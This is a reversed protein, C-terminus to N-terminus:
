MGAATPALQEVMILELDYLSVLGEGGGATGAALYRADPSLALSNAMAKDISWERVPAQSAIDWLYVQGGDAVSVVQNGRPTFRVLRVAGSHGSLVARPAPDAGTGDWLRISGDKSGSALLNGTPSHSLSTIADTHGRLPPKLTHRLWGFEYFRITTDEGGLALRKGDPHFALARALTNHSRLITERNWGKKGLGWLFVATLATAALRTGDHSFVLADVQVPEGPFRARAKVSDRERWDWRWMPGRMASASGTVLVAGTPDFTIVQLDGLQGRLTAAETPRAGARDLMPGLDWVRVVDDVGGSALVRGDPSFSLATVYGKHGALAASRRASHVVSDMNLQCTPPPPTDAVRPRVTEDMSATPPRVEFVASSGRPSAGSLVRRQVDAIDDAVEQASQYRHEPRKAMLRYVIRGVDPPLGRRVEEIPKPSIRENCHKQIKEVPSGKPYPVSGTLLFYFTCGLSYLDARHDVESADRAQEPAIFDPTGIVSGAATIASEDDGEPRKVLGMDLIKVVRAGGRQAQGPPPTTDGPGRYATTAPRSVLLNSPKIDRHVMGREHAAALGLAAQRMYECAEAIPLVGEEQVMRALDVGEVYEMALFYTETTQGVDHVVVVNPHMLKAVARAERKFREVFKKDQVLEPRVMKLAVVRELQTDWAKFVQGMGGEGLTDRLVYKGVVLDSSLGQLAWEVQFTTLTGHQILQDAAERATVDPGLSTSLSEVQEPSLLQAQGLDDLL